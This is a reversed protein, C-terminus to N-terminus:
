SPQEETLKDEEDEEAGEAAIMSQFADFKEGADNLFEERTQGIDLALGAVFEVFSDMIVDAAVDPSLATLRQLIRLEQFVLDLKSKTLDELLESEEERQESKMEKIDMKTVEM